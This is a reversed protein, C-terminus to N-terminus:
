GSVRRVGGKEELVHGTPREGLQEGIVAGELLVERLIEHALNQVAKRIEVFATDHM